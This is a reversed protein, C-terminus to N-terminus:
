PYNVLGSGASAIATNVDISVVRSFISHPRYLAFAVCRRSLDSWIHNAFKSSAKM